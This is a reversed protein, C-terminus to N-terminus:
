ARGVRSTGVRLRRDEGKKSGGDQEGKAADEMERVVWMVDARVDRVDTFSSRLRMAVQSRIHLWYAKRSSCGTGRKGEVPYAIHPNTTSIQHVVVISKFETDGTSVNYMAVPHPVIGFPAAQRVEDTIAASGNLWLARELPHAKNLAPRDLKEHFSVDNERNYIVQVCGTCFGVRRNVQLSAPSGSGKEDCEYMVDALGGQKVTLLYEDVDAIAALANEHWLALLAHNYTLSQSAYPHRTTSNGEFYHPLDEWVVVRLRGAAIMGQVRPEAALAAAGGEVYVLYRRVGLHAHFRMHQELLTVYEGAPMDFYPSIIMYSTRDKKKGEKWECRRLGELGMATALQPRPQPAEPASPDPWPPSVSDAAHFTCFTHFRPGALVQFEMLRADLPELTLTGSIRGTYRRRHSNTWPHAFTIDLPWRKGTHGSRLVLADPKDAWKDKAPEVQEMQTTEVTKAPDAMFLMGSVVLKDNDESCATLWIHLLVPSGM